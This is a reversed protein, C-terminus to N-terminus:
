SIWPSFAIRDFGLNLSLINVMDLRLNWTIWVFDMSLTTEMCFIWTGYRPKSSRRKRKKEEEEEDGEGRNGRGIQSWNPRKLGHKRLGQKARWFGRKPNLKM